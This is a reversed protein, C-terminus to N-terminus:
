TKRNRSSNRSETKIREYADKLRESPTYSASGYSNIITGATVAVAGGNGNIYAFSKETAAVVLTKADLTFATNPPLQNATGTAFIVGNPVSLIDVVVKTQPNLVRHAVIQVAASDLAMAGVAMQIDKNNYLSNLFELAVVKSYAVLDTGGSPITITVTQAPQSASSIRYVLQGGSASTARFHFTDILISATAATSTNVTFARPNAQSVDLFLSKPGRQNLLGYFGDVGYSLNEIYALTNNGTAINKTEVNIIILETKTVLTRERTDFALYSLSTYLSDQANKVPNYFSYQDVATQNPSALINTESGNSTLNTLSAANIKEAVKAAIAEPTTPTFLDVSFPIGIATPDAIIIQKTSSSTNTKGSLFISIIGYETPPIIINPYTAVTANNLNTGPTALAFYISKPVKTADLNNVLTAASVTSVNSIIKELDYIAQKEIQDSLHRSYELPLAAVLWAATFASSVRRLGDSFLSADPAQYMLSRIQNTTSFILTGKDDKASALLLIIRPDAHRNIILTIEDDTSQSILKSLAKVMDIMLDLDEPPRGLPTSSSPGASSTTFDFAM